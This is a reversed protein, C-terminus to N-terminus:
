DAATREQLEAMAQQLERVDRQLASLQVGAGPGGVETGTCGCSRAAQEPPASFGELFVAITYQRLRDASERLTERNFRVTSWVSERLMRHFHDQDVDTRFEGQAVGHAIADTWFRHAQAVAAQLREGDPQGLLQTENQYIETAYPHDIATAFSVGVMRDLRERASEGPTLAAEYRRNLEEVFTIVIEFAIADKSGFYHYLSGSLIGVEDAIDRVTTGAVGRESFLKAAQRLITERRTLGM